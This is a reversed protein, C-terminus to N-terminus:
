KKRKKLSKKANKKRTIEASAKVWEALKERDELIDAPTQWYPMPMPRKGGEYIFPTSGRSEFAEKNTEDVKLYLEDEVNIGFILGHMYFGHGGFMSKYSIGDMHGLLDSVVYEAFDKSTPM